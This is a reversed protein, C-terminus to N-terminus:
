MHQYLVRDLTRLTTPEFGVWPLETKNPFNNAKPTNRQKAKNNTHGKKSREEKSGEADTMLTYMLMGGGECM